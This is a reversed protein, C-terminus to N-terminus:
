NMKLLVTILASNNVVGKAKKWENNGETIIKARFGEFWRVPVGFTEDKMKRAVLNNAEDYKSDKWYKIFDFLEKHKYFDEFDNKAEIEHIFSDTDTFM